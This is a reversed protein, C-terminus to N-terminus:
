ANIPIYVLKLINYIHVKKIYQKSLFCLLGEILTTIGEAATRLGIQM